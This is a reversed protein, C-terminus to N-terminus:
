NGDTENNAESQLKIQKTPKTDSASQDSGDTQDGDDYPRKVTSSQSNPSSPRDDNEDVKAMTNEAKIRNALIKTKIKKHSLCSSTPSSSSSSSSPSCEPSSSSSSSSSSSTVPPPTTTTSSISDQQPQQQQSYVNLFSTFDPQCIPQQQQSATLAYLYLLFNTQMQSQNPLQLGNAKAQPNGPPSPTVSAMLSADLKACPTTSRPDSNTSTTSRSEILSEINSIDCKKHQPQQRAAQRASSFFSNARSQNFLFPDATNMLNAINFASMPANHHSMPTEQLQPQQTPSVTDYKPRKCSTPYGGGNGDDDDDDDSYDVINM